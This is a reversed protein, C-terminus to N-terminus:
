LSPNILKTEMKSNSCLRFLSLVLIMVNNEPYLVTYLFLLQVLILTETSLLQFVTDGRIEKVTQTAHKQRARKHYAM